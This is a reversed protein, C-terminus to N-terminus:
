GLSSAARAPIGTRRALDSLRRCSICATRTRAGSADAKGCGGIGRDGQSRRAVMARRRGRRVGSRRACVDDPRGAEVRGDDALGKHSPVPAEGTNLLMFCGTGYTNKASGPEFCAQGFLAAQQDGAIGAIPIASGFLAPDTEGYVESSARVEPLM